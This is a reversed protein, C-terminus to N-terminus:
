DGADPEVIRGAVALFLQEFMDLVAKAVSVEDASTCDAEVKRGWAKKLKNEKEGNGKHLV